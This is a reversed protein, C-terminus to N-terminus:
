AACSAGGGGRVGATRTSNCLIRRGKRMHAACPRPLELVPRGTESRPGFAHVYVADMANFVVFLRPSLSVPSSLVSVETNKYLRARMCAPLTHTRTRTRTHAYTHRHTTVASIRCAFSAERRSAHPPQRLRRGCSRAWGSDRSRGLVTLSGFGPRMLRRPLGRRNKGCAHLLSLCARVGRM